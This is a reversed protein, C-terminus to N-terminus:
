WTELDTSTRISTESVEFAWYLAQLGSTRKCSRVCSTVDIRRARTSQANPLWGRIMVGAHGQAAESARYLVSLPRVLAESLLAWGM